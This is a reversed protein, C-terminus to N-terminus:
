VPELDFCRVKFGRQHGIPKMRALTFVKKATSNLGNVISNFRTENM